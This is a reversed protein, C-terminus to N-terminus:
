DTNLEISIMRYHLPIHCTYSRQRQSFNKENYKKHDYFLFNVIYSFLSFTDHFNLKAQCISVVLFVFVHM